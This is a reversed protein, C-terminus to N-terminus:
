IPGDQWPGWIAYTAGPRQINVFLTNGDPSFTAGTIESGNAINEAFEFLQGDPTLVRIFQRFEGDECILVSNRPTVCINDPYDLYEQNLSEYLLMLAGGDSGPQYSWIQGRGADGGNTCSFFIKRDGYWCGEVRTFKTGGLSRGQLYVADPREEADAPDPDPIDLWVVPLPEGVTQGISADFEPNDLIGLM